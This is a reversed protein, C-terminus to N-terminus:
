CSHFLETSPDCCGGVDSKRIQVPKGTTCNIVTVMPNHGAEYDKSSMVVYQGCNGFAKNIKTCAIKAGRETAYATPCYHNPKRFLMETGVNIIVYSM